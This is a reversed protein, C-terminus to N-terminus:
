QISVANATEISGFIKNVRTTDAGVPFENDGAPLFTDDTNPVFLALLHRFEFRGLRWSLTRETPDTPDTRDMSTATFNHPKAIRAKSPMPVSTAMKASM